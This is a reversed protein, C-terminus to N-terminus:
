EESSAKPKFNRIIKKLQSSTKVVLLKSRSEFFRKTKNSVSKQNLNSRLAESNSSKEINLNKRKQMKKIYEDIVDSLKQLLCDYESEKGTGELVLQLKKELEEIQKLVLLGKGDEVRVAAEWLFQAAAKM